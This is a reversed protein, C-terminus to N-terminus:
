CYWSSNWSFNCIIRERNIAKKSDLKRELKLSIFVYGIGILATLGLFLVGYDM